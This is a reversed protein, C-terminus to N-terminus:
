SSQWAFAAIFGFCFVVAYSLESWGLKRVALPAPKQIFYYWGRFLLPSFALSAVAPILGLLCAITIVAAMALQRV